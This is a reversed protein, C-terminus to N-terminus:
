VWKRASSIDIEYEKGDLTRVRINLRGCLMERSVEQVAMGAEEGAALVAWLDTLACPEIDSKKFYGALSEVVSM